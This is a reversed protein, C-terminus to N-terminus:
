VTSSPCSRNLPCIVCKPRPARCVERGLRIMSLHMRLRENPPVLNELRTRILEYSANRPVIGLRYSVRTVHTDVPFVGRGAVFALLIDATKPGVGPLAMLEKRAEETPRHLVRALQGRYKHLVIKSVRKINRSKSRYLGAVRICEAIGGIPAESLVRPTIRFRRALRRYALDSNRDNTNQSLITGILVSFAGSPGSWPKVPFDHLIRKLMQRQL